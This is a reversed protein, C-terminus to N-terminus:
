IQCAIRIMEQLAELTVGFQQSGDLQRLTVTQQEREKDGLVLM